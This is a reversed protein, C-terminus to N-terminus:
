EGHKLEHDILALISMYQGKSVFFRASHTFGLKDSNLKLDITSLKEEEVSPVLECAKKITEATLNNPWWKPSKTNDEKDVIFVDTTTELLIAWNTLHKKNYKNIKQQLGELNM